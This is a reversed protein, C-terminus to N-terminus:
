TALSLDCILRTGRDTKSFRLSFLDQLKKLFTGIEEKEVCTLPPVRKVAEGESPRGFVIRVNANTHSILYGIESRGAGIWAVVARKIAVTLEKISKKRAPM